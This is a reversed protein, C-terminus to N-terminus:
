GSPCRSTSGQGTSCICAAVWAQSLYSWWANLGERIFTQTVGGPIYDLYASTIASPLPLNLIVTDYSFSSYWNCGSILQLSYPQLEAWLNREEINGRLSISGHFGHLLKEGFVHPSTFRYLVLPPSHCGPFRVVWIEQQLSHLQSSTQPQQMHFGGVHTHQPWVEWVSSGALSQVCFPSGQHTVSAWTSGM